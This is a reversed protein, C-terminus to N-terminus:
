YIKHNVLFFIYMEASALTASHEELNDIVNQGVAYPCADRVTNLYTEKIM